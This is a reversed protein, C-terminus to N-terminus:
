KIRTNAHEKWNNSDVKHFNLLSRNNICFCICYKNLKFNLPVLAQLRKGFLNM